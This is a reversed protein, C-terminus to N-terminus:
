SPTIEDAYLAKFDYYHKPLCVLKPKKVRLDNDYLKEDFLDIPRDTNTDFVKVGAIDLLGYLGAVDWLCAVWTWCRLQGTTVYIGNVAASFTTLRGCNLKQKVKPNERVFYTNAYLAATKDLSKLETKVNNEEVFGKGNNAYAWLNLSPAYIVSCIAKCKRFVGISIGYYPLGNSYSLTGDIPDIIFTWEHRKIKKMPKDGLDNISEEDIIVYDLDSFEQKVFTEFRRSIELDTETVVDFVMDSKLESTEFSIQDQNARAFEGADRAFKLLKDLMKM